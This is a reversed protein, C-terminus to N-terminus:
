GAMRGLMLDAAKEGIMASPAQTNGSVLLPMISADAVRLGEVGRVRLTPDVVSREDSGMRCTGVPHYITDARERILGRLAAPDDRRTGYIYRGGYSALPPQALISQVIQAGRVLTELGRAEEFMDERFVGHYLGAAAISSVHHFCGAKVTKAFALANAVRAVNATVVQAPPANLDYVAALHFFHDIKGELKRADEASVGLDPKSIDGKILAVREAGAGWLANLAGVLEATLQYVLAYVPARERELLRRVLREGIFGTGGTM